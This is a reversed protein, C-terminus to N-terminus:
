CCARLASSFAKSPPPTTAHAYAVAIPMNFFPGVLLSMLTSTWTWTSPVILVPIYFIMMSLFLFVIKWYGFQGITRMSQFASKLPSQDSDILHLSAFSLRPVLYLVVFLTWFFSFVGLVSIILQVSPSATDFLLPPALMFLPGSSFIAIVLIYFLTTRLWIKRGFGFSLAKLLTMPQKRAVSITLKLYGSQFAPFIGLGLLFIVLHVTFAIFSPHSDLISLVATGMKSYFFDPLFSTLLAFPLLSWYYTKTLSIASTFYSYLSRFM